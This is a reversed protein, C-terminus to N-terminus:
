DALYYICTYNAYEAWPLGLRYRKHPQSGGLVKGEKSSGEVMNWKLKAGESDAQIKWYFFGLIHAVNKSFDKKGKEQWGKTKNNTIYFEIIWGTASNRPLQTRQPLSPFLNSCLSLFFRASLLSWFHLHLYFEKLLLVLIWKNILIFLTKSRKM